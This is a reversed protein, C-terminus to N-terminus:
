FDVMADCDADFEGPLAESTRCINRVEKDLSQGPCELAAIGLARLLGSSVRVTRTTATPM